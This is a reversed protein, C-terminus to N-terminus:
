PLGPTTTQKRFSWHNSHRPFPFPNPISVSKLTSTTGGLKLNFKMLVNSCYQPANKVVNASQVCQSMVGFRCDMNRKVRQYTDSSKDPLIVMIMQPRMQAKDGAKQFTKALAEPLDSVGSVVVPNNDEIDGGHGKYLTTFSKTFAAVQEASVAPRGGRGNLVCIGWSKLRKPNRQSFVKGRLDWRGSFMPKATGNAFQVEPPDLIRAATKLMNPAIQMNYGKLM